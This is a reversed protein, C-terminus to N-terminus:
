MERDIKKKRLDVTMENDKVVLDKVMCHREEKSEVQVVVQRVVVKDELKERKTDKCMVALFHGSEHVYVKM